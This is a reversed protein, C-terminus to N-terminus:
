DNDHIFSTDPREGIAPIITDFELSFESGQIPIPSRRGSQDMEGLEMRLCEVGTVKGNDQLVKIPAVLYQIEIGEELADEIEEEYAPMEKRTRRYLITVNAVNKHRIAVRAADIAANGGGIIGVNAGLPVEKGLNVLPLLQMAPIVGEANEEPIALKMSKHAGTAIFVAKFGQGILDDITFDKGLTANTKLQVGSELILEIDSKLISKPLRHEPIGLALMGGAVTQSEFITVDYGLLNLKYSAALGAPGSGIVAVNIDHRESKQTPLINKGNEIAWDMVFRKLARIAIPEGFDGSRCVSECQHDCVRGCISPLPNDKRIIQYAEEFREQAILAIYVSAEQDTPCISQCPASVIEKCVMASCKKRQIHEEYENRFYRLTSLVPNAATQGLGCMSADKVAEALEELLDIDKMEGRGESIKTVIEWM